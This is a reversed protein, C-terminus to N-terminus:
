APRAAPVLAYTLWAVGHCMLDIGLLLGLVWLGTMPFGTLVVLGAFIGFIGSLLMIWGTDRWHRYGLYTRILGSFLLLLGLVYTIFLAGAVPQSWLAVGFCVYVVGLVIQWVFGGWGKTWFAHAIEIAGGAIAVVAIFKASIITALAVDGLAILGAVILALGLAIRAWPPPTSPAGLSTAPKADFSTM